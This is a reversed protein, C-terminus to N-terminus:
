ARHGHRLAVGQSPEGVTDVRHEGPLADLAGGQAVRSEGPVLERPEREYRGVGVALVQEDPEVVPPRQAGVEEHLSREGDAPRRALRILM